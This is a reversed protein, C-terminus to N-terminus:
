NNKFKLLQHVKNGGQNSGQEGSQRDEKGLHDGENL